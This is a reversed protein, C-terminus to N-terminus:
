RLSRLLRGGPREMFYSRFLAGPANKLVFIPCFGGLGQPTELFLFNNTQDHQTWQNLCLRLFFAEISSYIHLSFFLRAIGGVAHQSAGREAEAAPRKRM